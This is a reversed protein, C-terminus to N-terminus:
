DLFEGGQTSAALENGHGCSVTLGSSTHLMEYYAPEKPYHSTLGESLEWTPPGGITPQGCSSM